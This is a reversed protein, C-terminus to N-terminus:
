VGQFLNWIKTWREDQKVSLHLPENLWEPHIDLETARLCLGQLGLQERFFRNHHSDGHVADGIVPHSIRGFHRRIQHYRGTRPWVEVLSYRATPHRKGVAHPLELTKVLRYDTRAQQIAGHTEQELDLDIIGEQPIYGRVVAHYKKQASKDQVAQHLIRAAGKDLAFILVGSTGADLRHVPYLYKQLQYKLVYLCIQDKSVRHREDEHPVVHFGSPKHIAVMRDDQYLIEFEKQTM